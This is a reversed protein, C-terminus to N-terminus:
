RYKDKLNIDGSNELVVDGIYFNIAFMNFQCQPISGSLFIIIAKAWERIWIRM